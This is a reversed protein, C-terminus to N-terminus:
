KFQTFLIILKPIFIVLGIVLSIIASILVAGASVDKVIRIGPHIERQVVNCLSEIATNIMELSLVGMICLLIVLWESQSIHLVLAMLITLVALLVHAKFNLQTVFCFKLGQWAYPFSHFIKM